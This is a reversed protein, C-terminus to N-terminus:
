YTISFLIFTFFFIEGFYLTFDFYILNFYKKPSEIKTKFGYFIDFLIENQVFDLIIVKDNFIIHITHWKEDNLPQRTEVFLHVSEESGELLLHPHGDQLYLAVLPSAKPTANLDQVLRDDEWLLWEEEVPSFNHYDETQISGSYKQILSKKLNTIQSFKKLTSKSTLPGSYLIVGSSTTTLLRLSIHSPMCPFLPEIWAWGGKSFGRTPIKCFPEITGGPCVCRFYISKSIISILM